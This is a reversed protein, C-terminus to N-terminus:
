AKKGRHRQELALLAKKMGLGGGFGTLAGSAGILRHCPVIIGVPNAGAAAGVARAKNRNGLATALEGYSRTTGYPIEQLGHWVKKQFSTGVLSLPLDFRFLRGDLYALLQAAAERLLPSPAEEPLTESKSKRDEPFLLACLGSEDAILTFLGLATAQRLVSSPSPTM